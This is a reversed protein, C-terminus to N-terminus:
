PSLAALLEALLRNSVLFGARTLRIGQPAAEVLGAPVYRRAAALLGPPLGCGFRARCGAATLGACLRLRLMVYEAFSGAPYAADEEPAPADGALFGRLSRPWYFRKGQYYSHAAPGLGLYPQQDWYKLNHRSQRGPAAFNSIEYQAYGARELEGCALLYLDAAQDDDPLALTGRVQWFRTHPEIKLLYASVHTAGCRACFAVDRRLGEATQGPVALMLDLSVNAIGARHAAEVARAADEGTHRRGLASLVRADASQLGLSVRNVGAARVAQFLPFLDAGPNAELTVEAGPLLRPRLAALIRCLRAAGLLPPTGGGFYASDIRLGPNELSYFAIREIIRDTYADLLAQSARMSYFDCYPCKGDCFPVHLYLGIPAM